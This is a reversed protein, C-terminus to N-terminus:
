IFLSLNSCLGVGFYFPRFDSLLGIAFFFPRFCFSESKLSDLSDDGSIIRPFVPIFAVPIVAVPIYFLDGGETTTNSSRM